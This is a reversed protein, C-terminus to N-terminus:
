KIQLKNIQLDGNWEEGSKAIGGKTNTKLTVRNRVGLHM